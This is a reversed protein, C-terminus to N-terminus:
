LSKVPTTVWARSLLASRNHQLGAEPQERVTSETILERASSRSAALVIPDYDM